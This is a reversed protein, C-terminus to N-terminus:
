VGESTIRGTSTELLGGCQENKIEQFFISFGFGVPTQGSKFKIQVKSSFSFHSQPPVVGCVQTIRQSTTADIIELYDTTCQPSLGIGTVVLVLQMVMGPSTELDWTCDM